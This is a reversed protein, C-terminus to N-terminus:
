TELNSCEKSYEVLITPDEYKAKNLLEGLKEDEGTKVAKVAVRKHGQEDALLAAALRREGFDYQGFRQPRIIVVAYVEAVVVGQHLTERSEREDIDVLEVAVAVAALGQHLVDYGLAIDGGHLCVAAREGGVAAVGAEDGRGVARVRQGVRRAAAAEYAGGDRPADVERRGNVILLEVGLEYVFYAAARGPIEVVGGRLAEHLGVAGEEAKGVKVVDQAAEEALGRGRCRRM